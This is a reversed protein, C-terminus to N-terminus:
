AVPAPAAVAVAVEPEMARDHGVHRAPGTLHVRWQSVLDGSSRGASLVVEGPEVVRRLDRGPFSALDAPVRFLVRASQGAELTLRAYGILRQVPRVVSAVPDHLYLQVIDAGAREGENTVDLAVEVSGATGIETVDGTLDTWVFTTYSLGHGFPYAATPDINSVDNARALPAALYTSPQAGVTAPISVPLRGSPNV